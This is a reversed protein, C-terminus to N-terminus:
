EPRVSRSTKPVHSLPTWVDERSRSGRPAYLRVVCVVAAREDVELLVPVTCSQWLEGPMKFVEVKGVVPGLIARAVPEACVPSEEERTQSEGSAGELITQGKREGLPDPRTSPIAAMTRSALTGGGGPFIDNHGEETPKNTDKRADKRFRRIGPVSSVPPQVLRADILANLPESTVTVLGYSPRNRNHRVAQPMAGRGEGSVGEPLDFAVPAGPDDGDGRPGGNPPTAGRTTAVTRRSPGDDRREGDAVGVLTSESKPGPDTDGDRSHGSRSGEAGQVNVASRSTTMDRSVVDAKMGRSRSSEERDFIRSGEAPAVLPEHSFEIREGLYGKDLTWSCPTTPDSIRGACIQTMSLGTRRDYITTRVGCRYMRTEFAVCSSRLFRRVGGGHSLLTSNIM